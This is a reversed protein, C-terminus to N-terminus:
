GGLFRLWSPGGRSKQQALKRLRPWLEEDWRHLVAQAVQIWAQGFARDFAALVEQWRRHLEELGAGGLVATERIRLGVEALADGVRQVSGLTRSLRDRFGTEEESSPMYKMAERQTMKREAALRRVQAEYARHVTAAVADLAGSTENFLARGDLVLAASEFTAAGAAERRRRAVPASLVTRVDRLHDEMFDPRLPPGSLARAMEFLGREEATASGGIATSLEPVRFRIEPEKRPAAALERTSPAAPPPAAAKPASAAAAGARKEQSMRRLTQIQTDGLYVLELRVGEGVLRVVPGFSGMKVECEGIRGWEVTSPRDRSVLVLGRRTAVVLLFGRLSQSGVKGTVAAATYFIPTEGGVAALETVNRRTREAHRSLEAALPALRASEGRIAFAGDLSVVLLVSSRRAVGLLGDVSVTRDGVQLRSGSLRVPCGRLAGEGEIVVDLDAEFPM